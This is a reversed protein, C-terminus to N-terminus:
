ETKWLAGEKELMESLKKRGRELRKRVTTESLTLMKAIEKGQYGEIYHLLLIKRYKEPLLLLNDMLETEEKTEYYRSLQEMSIKPHNRYFRLRNKCLNITVRILWAKRYEETDFRKRCEMYKILTDQVIDEADFANKMMVFAIRYLMNGYEFFVEEVNRDHDAEKKDM